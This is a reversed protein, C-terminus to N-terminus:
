ESTHEESRSVLMFGCFFTALFLANGLFKGAIYEGSRLPTAAIIAGVRSQADRRVANSVVYFGALGIFLTGLLATAMAITASNYVARRGEIRMLARGTSPDPVWVYAIASLLLFIVVTSTRRFRIRADAAAIHLIKEGSAPLLHRSAASSPRWGATM